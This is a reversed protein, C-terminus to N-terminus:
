VIRPEILVHRPCSQLRRQLVQLPNTTNYEQAIHCSVQLRIYYWYLSFANIFVTPVVILVVTLWFWWKSDPEDWLVYAAAIDTGHDVLTGVM